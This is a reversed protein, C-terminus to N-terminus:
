GLEIKSGYHEKMYRKLDDEDVCWQNNIKVAPFGRLKFLKYTNTMGINLAKSVMKPTLYQLKSEMRDGRRGSKLELKKKAYSM